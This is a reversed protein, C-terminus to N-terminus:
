EFTLEVAGEIEEWFALDGEELTLEQIIDEPIVIFLEGSSNVEIRSRM